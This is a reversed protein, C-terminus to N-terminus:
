QPASQGDALEQDFAKRVREPTAHYQNRLRQLMAQEFPTLPEHDAPAPADLTSFVKIGAIEPM